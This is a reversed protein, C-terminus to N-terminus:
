GLDRYGIDLLELALLTRETGSFNDDEATVVALPTGLLVSGFFTHFGGEITL